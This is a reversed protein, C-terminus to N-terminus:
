EITMINPHSPNNEKEHAHAPAVKLKTTCPAKNPSPAQAEFISFTLPQFCAHSHITIHHPTIHHSIITQSSTIYTYRVKFMMNHNTNVAVDVRTTETQTAQNRQLIRLPLLTPCTNDDDNDFDIDIDIHKDEYDDDHDHAKASKTKSTSTSTSAPTFSRGSRTGNTINIMIVDADTCGHQETSSIDHLKDSCSASSCLYSM